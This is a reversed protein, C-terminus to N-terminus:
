GFAEDAGNGAFYRRGAANKQALAANNILSILVGVAVAAFYKKLM